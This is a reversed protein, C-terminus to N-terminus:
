AAERRRFLFALPVLALAVLWRGHDQYRLRRRAGDAAAAGRRDALLAELPATDGAHVIAGGGADALAALSEWRAPPMGYPAADPTVFIASVRIGESAMLRALDLAGPGLGGGDSVLVVDPREVVADALTRRAMALARDPRSGAVPMTDGDVVGVMTQLTEPEDTPVSVLFSEGSYIGLAVPRAAHRDILRSVAAQADDLGGGEIVSPSLDLLIMVADLNRLAPADPDPTAPGALGAAVLVASCAVLLPSPDRGAETLHGRRRMAPLLDADILRTWRGRRASARAALGGLLLAVPLAGLWIPRLLILGELGTM